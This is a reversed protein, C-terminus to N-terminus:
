TLGVKKTFRQSTWIILNICFAIETGILINQSFLNLLPANHINTYFSLFAAKDWFGFYLGASVFVLSVILLWSISKIAVSLDTRSPLWTASVSSILWLWIYTEIRTFDINNLISMNFQWFAVFVTFIGEGSISLNLSKLDNFLIFLYFFTIGGLFPAIATVIHGVLSAFNKKYMYNVFGAVHDEQNFKYFNVNTIRFGFIYASLLHSSEHLVVGPLYFTHYAFKPVIQLLSSSFRSNAINLLLVMLFIEM